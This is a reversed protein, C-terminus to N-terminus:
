FLRQQKNKYKGNECHEVIGGRTLETLALKIDPANIGLDDSLTEFDMEDGEPMLSLVALANDLTHM